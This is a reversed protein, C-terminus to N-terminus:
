KAKVLAAAVSAPWPTAQLATLLTKLAAGGDGAVPTWSSFANSLATLQALVLSALAVFDTPPHTDDGGLEIANTRFVAQPGADAGLTVGTTSAGAWSANDPHMGPYFVADAIHHRRQELPSQRGGLQKWADLTLDCVLLQGTDGPQVPFTLRFGGAGPFAVPVHAVVPFPMRAYTGDEQKIQDDILPQVDATQTAPDYAQVQAPMAVRIQRKTVERLHDLVQGFTPSRDYQNSM